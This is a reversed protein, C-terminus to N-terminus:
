GFTNELSYTIFLFGCDSKYEHYIEGMTAGTPALVSGELFLFLSQVPDLKIQRRVIWCLEGITTDYPILFKRKGIPPAERSNKNREIVVPLRDPYKSTIKRIQEQRQALSFEDKFFKSM